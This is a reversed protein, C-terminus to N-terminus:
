NGRAAQDHEEKKKIVELLAAHAADEYLQKTDKEKGDDPDPCDMFVQGLAELANARQKRIDKDKVSVDHLLMQITEFLTSTIDISTITWLVKLMTVSAAEELEKDIAAREEDTKAGARKKEFKQQLTVMDLGAKVMALKGSTKTNQTELYAQRNKAWASISPMGIGSDSSGLFRVACLHYVKGILQVMEYGYSATALASAEEKWISVCDDHAGDVWPKLKEALHIALRTVRRQQLVRATERSIDPSDGVMASTASALRGVYPRFKDSGFLFAFLMAPDVQLNQETSTKDASLGDKGNEDYAKRLEPDSLVQYAEAADKFKEASEKDDPGVKDPHYKRAIIYYKRKIASPDADAGVGLADYYAMDAVTKTGNLSAKISNEVKDEHDQLLDSDDEPINKILLAGDVLDTRVWKGDMESWWKGERPATIAEPTNMIGRGFQAVGKVLGSIAVIPLAIAGVVLGVTGGVAGGVLGAQKSGALLGATPALVLIGVGGVAGMLINSVGSTTGQIINKPTTNDGSMLNKAMDNSMKDGGPEKKDESSM